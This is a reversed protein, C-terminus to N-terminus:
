ISEQVELNVTEVAFVPYSSHIAERVGAERKQRESLAIPKTRRRRRRRSVVQAYINTSTILGSTSKSNSPGRYNRPAVHIRWPWSILRGMVHRRHRPSGWISDIEGM